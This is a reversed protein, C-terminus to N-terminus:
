CIQNNNLINGVSSRSILSICFIFELSIWYISLYNNTQSKVCLVNNCRSEFEWKLLYKFISISIESDWFWIWRSYRFRLWGFFGERLIRWWRMDNHSIRYGIIFLWISLNGLPFKLFFFLFYFLHKSKFRLWKRSIRKIHTAMLHIIRM